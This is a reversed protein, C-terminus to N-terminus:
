ESVAALGPLRVDSAETCLFFEAAPGLVLQRQWVTEAPERGLFVEYPADRPKSAWRGRDPAKSSGRVLRYVGGWGDRARRAVADHSAARMGSVAACNLEGLAAWDEVLYWDEYGAAHTFPLRDLRFAASEVVAEQISQHFAVLLREYAEREGPDNATHWFLYALM